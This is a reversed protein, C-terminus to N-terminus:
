DLESRGRCDPASVDMWALAELHHTQPFMDFAEVSRLEYGAERLTRLDRALTVPDCACIAIHRPGLEVVQALLERAGSRPPDLLVLDPPAIRGLLRGLCAKADGTLVNLAARQRRTAHRLAAAARPNGEIATGTLGAGLLPLTFNGAGAYVEVFTTVAHRRASECIREVLLQNVAWNVQTFVGEPVALELGGPLPYHQLASASEGAIAVEFSAELRSLAARCAARAPGRPTFSLLVRPDGPAARVEVESFRAVGAPDSRGLERVAVLARNIEPECVACEPIEVLEHSGRAFFGVRGREDIHLRIRNRYALARPGSVIPLPDPLERFGGTRSLAERLLAAKARLQAGRELQMLDCGGCARAVPCVPEVRDPSPQVLHWELARLYGKRSEIRRPRIRDGPLAGRAFAVRGDSLRAFGDGGPVLREIRWEESDCRETM